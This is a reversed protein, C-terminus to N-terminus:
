HGLQKKHGCIYYSYGAYGISSMLGLILLILYLRAM